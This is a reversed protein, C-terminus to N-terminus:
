KLVALIYMMKIIHMKEVIYAISTNSKLDYNNMFASEGIADLVNLKFIGFSYHLDM